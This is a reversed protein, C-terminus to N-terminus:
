KAIKVTMAFSYTDLTIYSFKYKPIERLYVEIKSSTFRQSWYGEKTATFSDESDTIVNMGFYSYFSEQKQRTADNDIYVSGLFLIGDQELLSYAASFIKEFKLNHSLDLRPQRGYDEFPFDSPYFNGATFWTTIILDYKGNLNSLNTADLLEVTVKDSANCDAVLKTTNEICLETNDIAHYHEVENWIEEIPILHKLVRGDGVGIDLIRIPRAIKTSLGHITEKLQVLEAWQAQKLYEPLNEWDFTKKYTNPNDYMTNM